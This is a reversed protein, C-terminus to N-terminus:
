AHEKRKKEKSNNFIRLVMSLNRAIKRLTSHLYLNRTKFYPDRM